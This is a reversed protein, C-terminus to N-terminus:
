LVDARTSTAQQPLPHQGSYRGDQMGADHQLLLMRQDM